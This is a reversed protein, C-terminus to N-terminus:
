GLELVVDQVTQFCLGSDEFVAGLLANVANRLTAPSATGDGQRPSLRLLQLLGREKAITEIVDRKKADQVVTNILASWLTLPRSPKLAFFVQRM